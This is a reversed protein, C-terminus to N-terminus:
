RFLFGTRLFQYKSGKIFITNGDEMQIGFTDLSGRLFKDLDSGRKVAYRGAVRSELEPEDEDM